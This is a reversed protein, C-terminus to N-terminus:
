FGPADCAAQGIPVPAVEYGGGQEKARFYEPRLYNWRATFERPIAGADLPVEIVDEQTEGPQIVRKYVQKAARWYRRDRIAVGDRDVSKSGLNTPGAVPYGDKDLGGFRGIVAGTGDLAEAALYGKIGGGAPFGHGICGNSTTVLLSAKGSEVSLVSLTTSLLDRRSVGGNTGDFPDTGDREEQLVTPDSYTGLDELCPPLDQPLVRMSVDGLGSLFGLSVDRLKADEQLDDYPLTSGSGLYNHGKSPYGHVAGAFPQQHCSSCEVGVTAFESDLFSRYHDAVVRETGDVSLTAPLTVFHCAGCVSRWEKKEIRWTTRHAENDVLVFAVLEEPSMAQRMPWDADLWLPRVALSANGVNREDTTAAARHCVVCGVGLSFAPETTTLPDVPPGRSGDGPFAVVGLPAHCALCHDAAARGKEKIFEALQLRFTDNSMSRGHASMNHQTVVAEHCTSNDCSRTPQVFWTAGLGPFPPPYGELASHISVPGPVKGVAEVAAAAQRINRAIDVVRIGVCIALAATVALFAGATPLRHSGAAVQQRRIAVVVHILLVAVFLYGTIAHVMPGVSAAYSRNGSAGADLMWAPIALVISAFIALRGSRFLREEPSKRARRLDVVLIGISLMALAQVFLRSHAVQNSCGLAFAAIVLVWFRIVHTGWTGRVRIWHVITAAAALPGVVFRADTLGVVLPAFAVILLLFPLLPRLIKWGSGRNWGNSALIHLPYYAFLVFGFLKGVSWHGFAFTTGLGLWSAFLGPFAPSVTLWAVMALFAGHLMPLILTTKEPGATRAM